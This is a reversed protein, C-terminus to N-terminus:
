GEAGESSVAKHIYNANAINDRFVNERLETISCAKSFFRGVFIFRQINKDYYLENNYSDRFTIFSETQLQYKFGKFHKSVQSTVAVLKTPSYLEGM